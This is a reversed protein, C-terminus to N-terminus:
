NRPDDIHWRSCSVSHNVAGREIGDRHTASLLPTPRSRPPRSPRGTPGFWAAASRAMRIAIPAGVPSIKFVIFCMIM